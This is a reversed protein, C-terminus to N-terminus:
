VRLPARAMEGLGDVYANGNPRTIEPVRDPYTM